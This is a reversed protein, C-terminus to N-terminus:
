SKEGKQQSSVAGSKNIAADLADLDEKQAEATGHSVLCAGDLVSQGTDRLRDIYSILDAVEGNTFGAAGANKICNKHMDKAPPLTAKYHKLTKM